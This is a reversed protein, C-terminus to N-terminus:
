QEGNAQVFNLLRNVFSPAADAQSLLPYETASGEICAFLLTLSLVWTLGLTVDIVLDRIKLVPAIGLLYIGGCASFNFASRAGGWCACACVYM